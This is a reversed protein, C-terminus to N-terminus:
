LLNLNYIDEADSGGMTNCVGSSVVTVQSGSLRASLLMAYTNKGFATTTDVVYRQNTACTAYTASSVMFYVYNGSTIIQSAQGQYVGAYSPMAVFVLILIIMSMYLKNMM